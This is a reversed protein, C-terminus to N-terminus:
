PADAEDVTAILIVVPGPHTRLDYVASPGSRSLAPAERPARDLSAEVLWRGIRTRAPGGFAPDRPGVTWTSQHVDTSWAVPERWGLAAVVAPLPLGPRASIGLRDGSGDVAVGAGASLPALGAAITAASGPGAMEAVLAALFAEAGGTAMPPVAWDPRSRHWALMSPRERPELYYWRGVEAVDRGDRDISRPPGFAQELIGLIVGRDLDLSLSVQNPRLQDATRPHGHYMDYDFAVFAHDIGPRLDGRRSREREGAPDFPSTPRFVGAGRGEPGAMDVDLRGVLREVDALSAPPRAVLGRVVGRASRGSRAASIRRLLRQAVRAGGARPLEGGERPQDGRQDATMPAHSWVRLPDDIATAM